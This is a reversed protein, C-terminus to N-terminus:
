RPTLDTLTVSDCGVLLLLSFAALARQIIKRAASIRTTHM